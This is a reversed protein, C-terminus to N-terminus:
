TARTCPLVADLDFDSSLAEKGNAHRSSARSLGFTRPSRESGGSAVCKWPVLPSYYLSAFIFAAVGAGAVALYESKFV